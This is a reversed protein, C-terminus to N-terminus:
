DFFQMNKCPATDFHDYRAQSSFDEAKHFQTVRLGAHVFPKSAETNDHAIM